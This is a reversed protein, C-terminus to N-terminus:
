NIFISKLFKARREVNRLHEIVKNPEIMGKETLIGTVLKSPTLDFGKELEPKRGFYGLINFKMTECITYFPIRNDEAALAVRHTPIGNILSGDALISDAGVLVKGARTAYSSIDDDPFVETPIRHPELKKAFLRGHYIREDDYRSEAVLVDFTKGQRKALKFAICVTSSYSCTLVQEFDNIMCAGYESAVQIALEYDRYLEDVKSIIFNRLAHMSEGREKANVEYLICGVLNQIPAMSPRTKLLRRGVNNFDELFDLAEKGSTQAVFKLVLLAKRALQSAGSRRDLEIDKIKDYIAQENM